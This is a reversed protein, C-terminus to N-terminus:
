LESSDSIKEVKISAMKRKPSETGVSDKVSQANQTKKQFDDTKSELDSNRGGPGSSSSTSSKGMLKTESPIEGDATGIVMQIPELVKSNSQQKVPESVKEWVGVPEGKKAMEILQSFDSIIGTDVTDSSDSDTVTSSTVPVIEGDKIKIKKFYAADFELSASVLALASKISAVGAPLNNIDDSGEKELVPLLTSCLGDPNQKKEERHVPLLWTKKNPQVLSAVNLNKSNSPKTSKKPRKKKADVL